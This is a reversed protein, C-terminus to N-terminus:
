EAADRLYDPDLDDWGGDRDARDEADPIIADLLKAAHNAKQLYSGSFGPVEVKGFSIREVEYENPSGPDDHSQPYGKSSYKVMVELEVTYTRTEGIM